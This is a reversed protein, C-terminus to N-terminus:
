AAGSVQRPKSSRGSPRPATPGDVRGRSARHPLQVVKAAPQELYSAWDNMLVVRKTFLDGRRYAAEVASGITHALAQEVVHNAHGTAEAAWDRFTSRFGHVTLDGRGMRKLPRGLTVDTMPRQLARGPFVLGREVLGREVGPASVAALASESLPVRHPKGAKMRAAPITWVAAKTDIEGWMAGRVEGSRVATLIAFQLAKAGIGDLERLEAMFAPAERWDLAAFHEVPRLKTPAPLMLQLHGRWVAPNPGDRWGHAIAYSLITEIRGRVRSATDPKVRWIPELCLLVLPTDIVEVPLKGIVPEVDNAISARWIKGYRASRWGAQQAAFYRDAVESFTRTRAIIHATHRETLPDKGARLLKRAADAEDRAEALSVENIPGLGMSHAKGHRTYRFLWSRNEASRVQLYLNSGDSYRGPKTLTRLRASTLPM